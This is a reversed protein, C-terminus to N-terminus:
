ELVLDQMCGSKRQMARIMENLEERTGLLYAMNKKRNYRVKVNKDAYQRSEPM